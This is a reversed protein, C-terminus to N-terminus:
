THELTLKGDLASLGQFLVRCGAEFNVLDNAYAALEMRQSRAQCELDSDFFFAEPGTKDHFTFSKQCKQVSEFPIQHKKLM